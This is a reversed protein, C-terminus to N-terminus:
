IMYNKSKQNNHPLTDTSSPKDNITALWEYLQSNVQSLGDKKNKIDVPARGTVVINLIPHQSLAFAGSRRSGKDNRM